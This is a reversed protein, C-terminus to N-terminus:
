RSGTNQTPSPATIKRQPEYIFLLIDNYESPLNSEQIKSQADESLNGFDVFTEIPGKTESLGTLSTIKTQVTKDLEELYPILYTEVDSLTWKETDPQQFKQMMHKHVERRDTSQQRQIRLRTTFIKEDGEGEIFNYEDLGYRINQNFLRTVLSRWNTTYDTTDNNIQDIYETVQTLLPTYHTEGLNLQNNNIKTRHTELAQLLQTKKFSPAKVNIDSFEKELDMRLNDPALAEEAKQRDKADQREEAILEGRRDLVKRARDQNGPIDAAFTQQITEISYTTLNADELYQFMEREMARENEPLLMLREVERKVRMVEQLEASEKGLLKELNQNTVGLLLAENNPDTFEKVWYARRQKEANDEITKNRQRIERQLNLVIKGHDENTLLENRSVEVALIENDNLELIRFLEKGSMDKELADRNDLDYGKLVEKQKLRFYELDELSMNNKEAWLVGAEGELDVRMLLAKSIPNDKNLQSYKRDRRDKRAVAEANTKEQKYHRQLDILENWLPIGEETRLSDGERLATLDMKLLRDIGEPTADALFTFRKQAKIERNLSEKKQDDTAKQQFQDNRITRIESKLDAPFDKIAKQFDSHKMKWLDKRDILNTFDQFTAADTMQNKLAILRDSKAKLYAMDSEDLLYKKQAKALKESFMDSIFDASTFSDIGTQQRTLLKKDDRKKEEGSKWKEWEQLVETFFEKHEPKSITPDSMMANFLSAKDEWKFMKNFRWQGFAKRGENFNPNDKTVRDFRTMMSNVKNEPVNYAIYARGQKAFEEDSMASLRRWNEDLTSDNQKTSLTKQKEMRSLFQALARTSAESEPSKKGTVIESLSM